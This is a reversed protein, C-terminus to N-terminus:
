KKLKSKVLDTVQKLTALKPLDDEPSDIGYKTELTAMIELAMMSDAGLGEVVHTDQGITSSEVEMIKSLMKKIEEELNSIDLDM